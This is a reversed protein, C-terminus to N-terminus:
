RLRFSCETTEEIFSKLKNWEKPFNKTATGSLSTGDEFKVSAKWTSPNITEYGYKEIEGESYGKLWELMNTKPLEKKIFELKATTIFKMFNNNWMYGDSWSILNRELDYKVKYGGGGIAIIEVELIKIKDYLTTKGM